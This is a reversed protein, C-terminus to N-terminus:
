KTVPSFGASEPVFLAAEKLLEKVTIHTMIEEPPPSTKTLFAAAKM